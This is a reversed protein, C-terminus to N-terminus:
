EKGKEDAAEEADVDNRIADLDGQWNLKGRFRRIEKGFIEPLVESAPKARAFDEDTWEPNDDDILEPDPKRLEDM